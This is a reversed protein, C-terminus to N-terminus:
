KVVSDEQFGQVVSVLGFGLCLYRSQRIGALRSVARLMLMMQSSRLFESDWARGLPECLSRKLRPSGGSELIHSHKLYPEIRPPVRQLGLYKLSFHDTINM